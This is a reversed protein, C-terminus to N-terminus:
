YPEKIHFYLLDIYWDGELWYVGLLHRKSSITDITISCIGFGGCMEILFWEIWFLEFTM